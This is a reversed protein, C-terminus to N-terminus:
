SGYNKIDTFKEVNQNSKKKKKQANPIYTVGINSTRLPLSLVRKIAEHTSVERKTIFVNGIASLKERVNRWYSEKSALKMLESM